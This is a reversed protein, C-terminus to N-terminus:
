ELYRMLLQRARAADSLDGGESPFRNIVAFELADQLVVGHATMQAAAILARTSIHGTYEGEGALQRQQAAFEVMVKAHHEELGPCRQVLIRQEVEVPPFDLNLISAFRNLFALDLANVSYERGLNCTAIFSVGPALEIVPSDPSDDLRLFGQSDLLTLLLAWVEPDARNVEDLLVVQGPTTIARIFASESYWTGRKPDFCMNGLLCSRADGSNMSGLNFRHLKRGAAEAAIDALVSKGVGTPGQVLVSGGLHIQLLIQDWCREEVYFHHPEPLSRKWGHLADLQQSGQDRVSSVGCFAGKTIRLLHERVAASIEAQTSLEANAATATTRSDHTVASPKSKRVARCKRRFGATTGHENGSRRARRRKKRLPKLARECDWLVPKRVAELVEERNDRDIVRSGRVAQEWDLSQVLSEDCGAAAYKGYVAKLERAKTASFLSTRVVCEDWSRYRPSWLEEVELKHLLCAARMEQGTLDRSIVTLQQIAHDGPHPSVTANSNPM